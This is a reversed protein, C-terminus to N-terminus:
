RRGRGTRRRGGARTGATTASAEDVRHIMGVMAELVEEPGIRRGTSPTVTRLASLEGHVRCGSGELADVLRGATKTAWRRRREPLEPPATQGETGRVLGLLATRRPACQDTPCVFPLVVNVRRVADVVAPPLPLPEGAPDDDAPEVAVPPPDTRGLLRTVQPLPDSAPDVTVLHVNGAGLRSAWYDVTRDVAASPPLTGRGSWHTVFRPWARTAGRQVRSSWAQRLAEDLPGALVVAVEPGTDKRGGRWPPRPRHEVLGLSSLRPRLEAATVPLGDVVFAPAEAASAPRRRRRAPHPPPLEAVLDALVGTAV